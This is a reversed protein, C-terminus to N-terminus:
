EYPQGTWSKGEMKRRGRAHSRTRGGVKEKRRRVDHWDTESVMERQGEDCGHKGILALDILLGLSVLAISAELTVVDLLLSLGVASFSCINVM